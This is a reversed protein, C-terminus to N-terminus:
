RCKKSIVNIVTHSKGNLPINVVPPLANMRGHATSPASVAPLQSPSLESVLEEEGVEDLACSLEPDDFCVEPDPKTDTPQAEPTGPGAPTVPVTVVAHVGPTPVHTDQAPPVVQVAEVIVPTPVVSPTPVDPIVLTTPTAETQSEDKAPVVVPLQSADRDQSPSPESVSASVSAASSVSSVASATANVSADSHSAMSPVAVASATASTIVADVVVVTAPASRSPDSHEAPAVPAPTDVAPVINSESDRHTHSTVPPLQSEITEISASLDHNLATLDQDLASVGPQLETLVASPAGFEEIIANDMTAQFEEIVNEGYVTVSTLTCYFESGHHTKMSLVNLLCDLTCKPTFHCSLYSLLAGSNSSSQMVHLRLTSPKLDWRKQPM